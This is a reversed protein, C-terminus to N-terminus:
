IKNSGLTESSAFVQEFILFRLINTTSWFNQWVKHHHSEGGNGRSKKISTLYKKLLYSTGSKNLALPCGRKSGPESRREGKGPFWPVAVGEYVRALPEGEWAIDRECM